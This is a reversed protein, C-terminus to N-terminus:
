EIKEFRSNNLVAQGWEYVIFERSGTKMSGKPYGLINLVATRSDGPEPLRAPRPPKSRPPQSPPAAPPPLPPALAPVATEPASPASEAQPEQNWAGATITLADGDRVAMASDDSRMWATRAPHTEPVGSPNWPAWLAEGRNLALLRQVDNESLNKKTYRVQLAIGDRGYASIDFNDKRYNLTQVGTENTGALLPQGYLRTWDAAPTGVQAPADAAVALVLGMLAAHVQFPNFTKKM